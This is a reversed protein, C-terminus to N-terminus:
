TCKADIRIFAAERRGSIQEDKSELKSLATFNCKKRGCLKIVSSCEKNNTAIKTRWHQLTLQLREIKLIKTEIDKSLNQDQTTLYKFDQTRQDTNTLYHLHAAEFHRELEEINSELTIRLVNIDELNRNRIEERLTEHETKAEQAREQEDAEVAAMIDWSQRRGTMSHLSKKESQTSSM